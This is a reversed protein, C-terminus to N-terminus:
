TRGALYNGYFGERPVRAHCGIGLRVVDARLEARTAQGAQLVDGQGSLEDLTPILCLGRFASGCPAGLRLAQGEYKVREPSDVGRPCARADPLAFAPFHFHRVWARTHTVVRLRRPQARYLSPPLLTNGCMPVHSNESTPCKCGVAWLSRREFNGWACARTPESDMPAIRPQMSSELIMKAGRPYALPSSNTAAILVQKACTRRHCDIGFSKRRPCSSKTSSEDRARVHTAQAKTVPSQRFPTKRWEADQPTKPCRFLVQGAATEIPRRL